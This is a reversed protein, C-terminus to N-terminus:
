GDAPVTLLGGRAASPRKWIFGDYLVHMGGLMLIVVTYTTPATWRDLMQVVALVLALYITLFGIRGLRRV